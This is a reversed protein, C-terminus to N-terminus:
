PKPLESFIGWSVVRVGKQAARELLDGSKLLEYEYVRKQWEPGADPNPAAPHFFMETVGPGAADVADLYYRRLTEYDRIRAMSWPNSVVDDPMQVGRREGCAVLMKQLRRAPGPLRRGLQRELFGPTKPFRFPLSYKRCLEFADLFFRRGNVGYLTACHNDAHDPSVGRIRMYLVQAELEAYVERRKALLGAALANARMGRGDTLSKARTLSQWRATDSDSNLVWHVGAPCGSERLFRVGAAAEPAVPLLSTSTLLGKEWLEAIAANQQANYGLDDAHLILFKEM